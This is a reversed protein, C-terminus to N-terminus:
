RLYAISYRGCCAIPNADYISGRAHKAPSKWSESKLIDGNTTDIFGYASSGCCEGTSVSTKHNVIRVYRKGKDLRVTTREIHAMDKCTEDFMAQLLVAFNQLAADFRPDLATAM